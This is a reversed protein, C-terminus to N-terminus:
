FDQRLEPLIFAGARYHDIGIHPRHHRTVQRLQLGRQAPPQPNHLGGAAANGGAQRRFLRHAGYQAAGGAAHHAGEVGSRLGTVGVDNGQIHAASGGIHGEAGTPNLFGGGGVQPAIRDAHRHNFDMRDAGAPTGDGANVGAPRQHYAGLRGAGVGARGAVSAAPLEGHGVGVQGQATQAGVTEQAAPHRQVLFAGVAQQRVDGGANAGGGAVGRQADDAHHVGIHFPGDAGNGQFPAIVRPFEGQNGKAAGARHVGAFQGGLQADGAHQHRTMRANQGGQAHGDGIHDLIVGAGHHQPAGVQLRRAQFRLKM